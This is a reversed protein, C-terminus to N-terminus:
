FMYSFSRLKEILFRDMVRNILGLNKHYYHNRFWSKPIGLKRIPVSNEMNNNKKLHARFAFPSRLDFKMRKKKRKM